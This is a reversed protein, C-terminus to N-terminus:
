YEIQVDALLQQATKLALKGEQHLNVQALGEKISNLVEEKTPIPDDGYTDLEKYKKAFKKWKSIPIFVDIKRGKNDDTFQLTM